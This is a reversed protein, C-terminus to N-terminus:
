KTEYKITDGNFYIDIGEDLSFGNTYYGINYHKVDQFTYIEIIYDGDTKSIKDM